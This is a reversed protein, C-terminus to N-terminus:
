KKENGHRRKWLISLILLILLVVGVGSFFLIWTVSSTRDDKKLTSDPERSVNPQSFDSGESKTPEKEGVEGEDPDNSASNGASEEPKDVSPSNSDIAGIEGGGTGEVSVSQNPPEVPAKDPANPTPNSQAVYKPNAIEQKSFAHPIDDCDRDICETVVCEVEIKPNDQSIPEFEILLVTGADNLPAMSIYTLLVKGTVSSNSKAIGEELIKGVTCNKVKVQKESFRVELSLGSIESKETVDITYMVADNQMAVTECFQVMSKATTPFSPLVSVAFLLLVVTQAM